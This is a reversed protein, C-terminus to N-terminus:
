IRKTLIAMVEGARGTSIPRSWDNPEAYTLHHLLRINKQVASPTGFLLLRIQEPNDRDSRLFDASVTPAAAGQASDIFM